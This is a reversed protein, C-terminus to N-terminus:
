RLKLRQLAQWGAAGGALQGLDNPIWLPLITFGLSM